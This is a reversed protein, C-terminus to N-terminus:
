SNKMWHYLFFDFTVVILMWNVLLFLAFLHDFLLVRILFAIMIVFLDFNLDLVVDFKKILFENLVVFVSEGLVHNLFLEVYLQLIMKLFYEQHQLAEFSYILQAFSHYSKI